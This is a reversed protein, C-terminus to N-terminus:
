NSLQMRYREADWNLLEAIQEDNLVNIDSEEPQRSLVDYYCRLQAMKGASFGPKTFVGVGRVFVLEPQLGAYALETRLADVSGYCAPHPGLFVVHDPYLAWSSSLRNFLTTDIALQQIFPEAVLAYPECGTVTLTSEYSRSMAPRRPKAALKVILTRLRRKIEAVNAGGIVVGHNQLLVVEAAPVSGLATSVAQALAAGPKHYGTSVWRLHSGLLGMIDDNFNNRVLRALIEVVHLHVVVQHPMLAHLLTEISPRLQSESRLRPTVSFDGSALAGALHPLDVPVFIDQHAADALCTGSAKVWLTNGDKWSVNGGAGQVLMPDAGIAMCYDIISTKM